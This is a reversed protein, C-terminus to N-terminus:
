QQKTYLSFECGYEDVLRNDLEDAKEALGVINNLIRESSEDTLDALHIRYCLYIQRGDVGMKYPYFDTDLMFDLVKEVNKKPLLNIPSIAFLYNRNYVFLRIESSGRHFVWTDHGCRALVPNIGM